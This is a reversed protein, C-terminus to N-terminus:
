GVPLGKLYGENNQTIERIGNKTIEIFQEEFCFYLRIVAAPKTQWGDLGLNDASLKQEIKAGAGVSVNKSNKSRLIGRQTSVDFSTKTEIDMEKGSFASCCVNDLQQGSICSSSISSGGLYDTDFGTTITKINWTRSFLTPVIRPNKPRYFAFGFAPVTNEKGIVLSAIDRKDEDSFFFQRVTGDRERFGDWWLTNPSCVYNQYPWEYGCQVCFNKHTFPEKHIPCKDAYQELSFGEIKLGTIPNLGKVSPLIATNAYDNQTWDFWLGWDADVPCVYTGADRVWETPADPLMAIPFVPIKEGPPLGHVLGKDKLRKARMISAFFGAHEMDYVSGNKFKSVIDLM